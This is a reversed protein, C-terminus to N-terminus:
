TAIPSGAWGSSRRWGRKAIPAPCARERLSLAAASAAAWSYQSRVDCSSACCRWARPRPYLGRYREGGTYSDKSAEEYAMLARAMLLVGTVSRPVHKRIQFLLSHLDQTSNQTAEKVAAIDSAEIAHACAAEYRQVVQLREAVEEAFGVEYCGPDARVEDLYQELLAAQLLTRPPRAWQKGGPPRAARPEPCAM